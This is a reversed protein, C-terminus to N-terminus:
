ADFVTRHPIGPSLSVDLYRRRADQGATKSVLDSRLNAIFNGPGLRHYKSDTDLSFTVM